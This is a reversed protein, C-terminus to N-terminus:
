SRRLREASPVVANKLLGSRSSPRVRVALVVCIHPLVPGDLQDRAALAGVVRGEDVGAEAAVVGEEEGALLQDPDVGVVLDVHVVRADAAPEGLWFGGGGGGGHWPSSQLGGAVAASAARRGVSPSPRCGADHGGGGSQLESSLLASFFALFTSLSWFFTSLAEPLCFFFSFFFSFFAFFCALCGLLCGVLAVLASRRHGLGVARVSAILVSAVIDVASPVERALRPAARSPPRSATASAASKASGDDGAGGQELVEGGLHAVLVAVGVGLGAAM